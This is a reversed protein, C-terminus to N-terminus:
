GGYSSSPEPTSEPTASPEPATSTLKLTGTRGIPLNKRWWDYLAKPTDGKRMAEGLISADDISWVMWADKARKLCAVQGAPAGDITYEGHFRAAECGKGGSKAGTQQESYAAALSDPDEYQSFWVTLGASKYTCKVRAVAARDALDSANECKAGVGGNPLYAILQENLGTSDPTAGPTTTPTQFPALSPGPSAPTKSPSTPAGSSTGGGCAAVALTMALAFGALPLRRIARRRGHNTVGLGTM